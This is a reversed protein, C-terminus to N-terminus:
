NPVLTAVAQAAAGESRGISGLGETTTAKVNVKEPTVMLIDSICKVMESKRKSIKPEQAILIVDV